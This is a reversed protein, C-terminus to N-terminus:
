TAFAGLVGALIALGFGTAVAVLAAGAAVKAGTIPGLDYGSEKKVRSGLYFAGVAAQLGIALVVGAWTGMHGYPAAFARVPILLLVVIAAYKFCLIWPIRTAALLRGSVRVCLALIALFLLLPVFQLVVQM